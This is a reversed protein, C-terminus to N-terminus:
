ARPRLPYEEEVMGPVESLPLDLRAELLLPYVELYLASLPRELLDTPVDLVELDYLLLPVVALLVTLASAM